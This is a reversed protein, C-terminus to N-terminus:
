QLLTKLFCQQYSGHTSRSLLQLVIKTVSATSRFEVKASQYLPNDLSSEADSERHESSGHENGQGLLGDSRSPQAATRCGTSEYDSVWFYDNIEVQAWVFNYAAIM